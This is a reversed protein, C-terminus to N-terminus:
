DVPLRWIAKDNEPTAPFLYAAIGGIEFEQMGFGIYINFSMTSSQKEETLVYGFFMIREWEDSAEMLQDGGPSMDGETAWENTPTKIALHYILPDDLDYFDTEEIRRGKIWLVGVIYDGEETEVDKKLPTSYSGEWFNEMDKTNWVKYAANFPVSDDGSLDLEEKKANGPSFGKMLAAEDDGKLIQVGGTLGYQEFENLVQEWYPLSPDIPQLEFPPETEKETPPETPEPETPPDTVEEKPTDDAKGSDVTTGGDDKKAGADDGDKAGCAFLMPLIMIICIFLATIKLINKSKVSKM